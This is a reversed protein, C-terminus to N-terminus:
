TSSRHQLQEAILLLPGAPMSACGPCLRSFAAPCLATLFLQKVVNFLKIDAHHSALAAILLTTLPTHSDGM